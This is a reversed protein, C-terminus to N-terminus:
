PKCVESARSRIADAIQRRQLKRIKAWEDMQGISKFAFLMTSTFEEAIKAADEYAIAKAQEVISAEVKGHLRRTAEKAAEGMAEGLLAEIWSVSWTRESSNTGSWKGQFYIKKALDKLDTM